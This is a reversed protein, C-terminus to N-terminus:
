EMINKLVEVGEPCSFEPHAQFTIVNIKIDKNNKNNNNNFSVEEEKNPVMTSAEPSSFASMVQSDSESGCSTLKPYAIIHNPNECSTAICIGNPPTTSVIDFHHYLLRNMSSSSSSSSSSTVEDGGNTNATTTDITPIGTGRGFLARGMETLTFSCAGAQIGLFFFAYYFFLM